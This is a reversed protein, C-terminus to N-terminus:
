IHDILKVEKNRTQFLQSLSKLKKNKLKAPNCINEIFVRNFNTMNKTEKM